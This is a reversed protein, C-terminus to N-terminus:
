EYNMFSMFYLKTIMSLEAVTKNADTISRNGYSNGFLHQLFMGVPILWMYIISVALTNSRVAEYAIEDETYFNAVFGNVLM